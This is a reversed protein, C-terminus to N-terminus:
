VLAWVRVFSEVLRPYIREECYDTKLKRNFNYSVMVRKPSMESVSTYLFCDSYLM